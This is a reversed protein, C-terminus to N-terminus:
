SVSDAMAGTQQHRSRRRSRQAEYLAMLPTVSVGHVIISVAIASLTLGILRDAVDRPLGREIAYMLYYVSGVGRIGFWSILRRQIKATRSRPLLGVWVAIPRIVLFLLACFWIADPRVYAAAFVLLSGLVVIMVVEGIRELQENFGLVAETMYAAALEPNTAADEKNALSTEALVEETAKHDGVQREIRRLALGAAFVALFGSAHALVTVGYTLAILGLTLFDDLGVATQHEKRLYLVLRGVGTGLLAGILLGGGVGWLVDILLWRWGWDGLDHLGILGLGLFMFPFASGDNLGAEGTLGFRVQDRDLASEVQVDAALVPDTPALIAGLVIAVGPPLGLGVVGVLAILGVTIAMSGFALRLPLHWRGESLPSHLKLGATFLSIIAAIEALRELIAAHEHIDLHLLGIGAPGIGFGVLMYLMATSLPLRKVVTVALAMLVFILGVVVFWLTFDM